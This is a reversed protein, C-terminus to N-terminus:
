DDESYVQDAYRLSFATLDNQDKESWTDSADVVTLNSQALDNLILSALRLQEAPPMMRVTHTFIEQATTATEM